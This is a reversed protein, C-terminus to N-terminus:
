GNQSFYELCFLLRELWGWEYYLLLPLPGKKVPLMLCNFISSQYSHSSNQHDFLHRPPHLVQSHLTRFCQLPSYQMLPSAKRMPYSITPEPQLPQSLPFTENMPSLWRNSQPGSFFHFHRVSHFHFPQARVLAKPSSLCPLQPACAM